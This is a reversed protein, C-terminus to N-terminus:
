SKIKFFTQLVRRTSRGASGTVGESTVYFGEPNLPDAGKFELTTSYKPSGPLGTLAQNTKSCVTNLDVTEDEGPHFVHRYCYLSAETGADAAFIARASSETDVSQRVQYFVLLGAIITSTLILGSIFLMTVLMAQGSVGSVVFKDSDVFSKSNLVRKPKLYRDRFNVVLGLELQSVHLYRKMQSFDDRTLIPKAKLDVLIKDEILFDIFNSVRDQIPLPLERKYSIDREQLKRELVDGYQREKCFRGLENQVEFFIGGMVYSLEKEVIHIKM